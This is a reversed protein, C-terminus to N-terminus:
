RTIPRLILSSTASAYNSVKIIYIPNLVKNYIYVYFPRLASLTAARKEKKVLINM